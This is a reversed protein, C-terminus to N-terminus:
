YATIAQEIVSTLFNITACDRHRAASEIAAGASTLAPFGFSTGTGKFNHGIMEVTEFDESALALELRRLEQFRGAVYEPVLVQIEPPLQQPSQPTEIESANEVSAPTRISM